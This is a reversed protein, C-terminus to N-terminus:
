FELKYFVAMPQQEAPMRQSSPSSTTSTSDYSSRLRKRAESSSRPTEPTASAVESARGLGPRAMESVHGVAVHRRRM